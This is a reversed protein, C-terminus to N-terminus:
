RSLALTTMLQLANVVDVEKCSKLTEDEIVQAESINMSNLIDSFSIESTM